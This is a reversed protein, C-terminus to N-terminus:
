VLLCVMFLWGDMLCASLCPLIDQVNKSAVFLATEFGYVVSGRAVAHLLPQFLPYYRVIFCGFTLVMWFSDGLRLRYNYARTPVLSDGTSAAGLRLYM